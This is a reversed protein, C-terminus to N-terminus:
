YRSRWKNQSTAKLADRGEPFKRLCELVAQKTIPRHTVQNLYGMEGLIEATKRASGIGDTEVTSLYVRLVVSNELIKHPM